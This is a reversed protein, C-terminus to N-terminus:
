TALRAQLVVRVSSAHWRAGSRPPRGQAALQAGVARLSHGDHRLAQAARITAQETAVPRLIATDGAVQWGYPARGGTYEGQAKKHQLATSTREGIAEREWQAVSMLVNLVLRGAATRTDVQEGVCLLASSGDRKGFYGDLLEGLDRVSRTLRDLKCVLLADADGSDLMALAQQLGPRDLTKASVGADVVVAVLEVDYLQAYMRVKAEQAELSVGHDAQQATSVRLYAVARTSTTAM